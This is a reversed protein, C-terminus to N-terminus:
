FTEEEKKKQGCTRAFYSSLTLLIMWCIRDGSQLRVPGRIASPCAKKIKAATVDEGDPEQGEPDCRSPDSPPLQLFTTFPSVGEASSTERTLIPPPIAPPIAPPTLLPTRQTVSNGTPAQFTTTGQAGGKGEGGRGGKTWLTSCHETPQGTDGVSLSFSDLNTLM